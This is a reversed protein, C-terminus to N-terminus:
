TKQPHKEVGTDQKGLTEMTYPTGKETEELVYKSHFHIYVITDFRDIFFM